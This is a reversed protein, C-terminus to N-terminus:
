KNTWIGVITKGIRYFFLPDLLKSFGVMYKDWFYVQAKTPYSQRLLLKNAMSAMMGVSDYNRISIEKLGGNAAFRLAKRDYRRYHGIARDFPSYLFQYAPSLIILKGGPKLREGALAMEKRDDEIHELVDIYLITDIKKGIM